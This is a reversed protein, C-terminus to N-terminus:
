VVLRYRLREWEFWLICSSFPSSLRKAWRSSVIRLLKWSTAHTCCPLGIYVKTALVKRDGGMTYSTTLNSAM